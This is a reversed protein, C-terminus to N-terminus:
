ARYFSLCVPSSVLTSSIRILPRGPKEQKMKQVARDTASNYVVEHYGAKVLGGSLIELQKGAQVVAYPVLRATLTPHRIYTSRLLVCM